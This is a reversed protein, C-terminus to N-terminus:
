PLPYMNKIFSQLQEFNKPSTTRFVRYGDQYVDFTPIANLQLTEKIFTKDSSDIEYVGFTIDTRQQSLEEFMPYAKKCPACHKSRFNIVIIKHQIMYEYSTPTIQLIRNMM